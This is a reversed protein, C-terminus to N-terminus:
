ILGRGNYKCIKEALASLSDSCRKDYAIITLKNLTPLTNFLDMTSEKILAIAEDICLRAKEIKKIREKRSQIM